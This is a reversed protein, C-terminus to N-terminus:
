KKIYILMTKLAAGSDESFQHLFRKKKVSFYYFANDQSIGWRSFWKFEFYYQRRVIHWVLLVLRMAIHLTM